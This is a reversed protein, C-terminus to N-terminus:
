GSRVMEKGPSVLSKCRSQKGSKSGSKPNQLISQVQQIHKGTNSGKTKVGAQRLKGYGQKYMSKKINNCRQVHEPEMTQMQAEQTGAVRSTADTIIHIHAITDLTALPNLFFNWFFGDVKLKVCPFLVNFLDM